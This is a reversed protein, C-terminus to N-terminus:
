PGIMSADVPLADAYFSAAMACVAIAGLILLTTWLLYPQERSDKVSEPAGTSLKVTMSMHDEMLIADFFSMTPM